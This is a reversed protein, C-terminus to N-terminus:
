KDSPDTNAQMSGSSKLGFAAENVASAADILSRLRVSDLRCDAPLPIPKANKFEKQIADLKKDLSSIDVQAGQAADRVIKSANVFDDLAGKWEKASGEAKERRLNAVEVDSRWGRITWTAGVLAAAIAIVGAIKFWIIYEKIFNM